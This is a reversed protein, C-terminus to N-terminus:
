DSDGAKQKHKLEAQLDKIEGLLRNAKHDIKEDLSHLLYDVQEKREQYIAIHVSFSTENTTMRSILNHKLDEIADYIAAEVHFVKYVVAILAALGLIIDLNNKM